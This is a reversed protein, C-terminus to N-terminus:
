KIANSPVSENEWPDKDARKGEAPIGSKRPDLEGSKYVWTQIHGIETPLYDIVQTSEAPQLIFPIHDVPSLLPQTDQSEEFKSLPCSPPPSTSAHQPM